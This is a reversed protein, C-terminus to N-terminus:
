ALAKRKWFKMTGSATLKPHDTYAGHTESYEDAMYVGITITNPGPATIWDTVDITPIDVGPSWGVFNGYRRYTGDKKLELACNGITLPKETKASISLDLTIRPLLDTDKVNAPIEFVMSGVPASFHAPDNIYFEAALSGTISQHSEQIYKSSYGNSIDQSAEWADSFDPQRAGLEIQLEKDSNKEYSIVSLEEPAEFNPHFTIFDGAKIALERRTTVNWQYDHQRAQFADIVYETLLGDTDLYGSEVEVIEMLCIENTNENEISFVNGAAGKGILCNVRPESVTSRSVEICEDEYLDYIAM